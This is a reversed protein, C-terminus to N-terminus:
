KSFGEELLDRYDDISFTDIYSKAALDEYRETRLKDFCRYCMGKYSDNGGLVIQEGDLAIKGDIFRANVTAKAGCGCVMKIEQLSDALEVLRKSGPFLNTQFDSLLGYCIVPVNKELTIKKLQEIHKPTFFQSEDCIIVNFNEGYRGISYNFYIDDFNEIAIADAEMGIRSKIVTKGDRTDVAPKLLLVENNNEEYNFKTILAQASKSAGMVGYKFYLKAM